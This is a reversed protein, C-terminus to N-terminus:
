LGSGIPWGNSLASTLLAARQNPLKSTRGRAIGSIIAQSGGAAAQNHPALQILAQTEAVGDDLAQFVLVHTQHPCHIRFM